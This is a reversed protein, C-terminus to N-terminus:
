RSFRLGAFDGRDGGEDTNDYDTHMLRAIGPTARLKNLARGRTPGISGVPVGLRAAIEKYPIPPDAIFMLVLERDNAALEALGDRLAQQREARLLQADTEPGDCETTDFGSIADVPTTRQRAALVRLAERKTTTIIWSPLARPERISGLNEVLRLWLTQSVDAADEDTLRYRRVVSYVLPLYREVLANWSAQDGHAASSLLDALPRTEHLEM